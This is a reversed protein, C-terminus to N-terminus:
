TLLSSFTKSELVYSFDRWLSCSFSFILLFHLVTEHHQQYPHRSRELALVKHRRVLVHLGFTLNEM